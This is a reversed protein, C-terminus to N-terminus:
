GAVGSESALCLWRRFRQEVRVRLARSDGGLAAPDEIALLTLRLRPIPHPPRFLPIERTLWPPECRIGVCVVPVNARCAIEFVVRGFPRLDGPPSRSGEPFVFLRMGDRLRQVGDSIVRGVSAPDEGPGEILGAGVMLPLLM